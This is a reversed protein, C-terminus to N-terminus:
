VGPRTIGDLGRSTGGPGTRGAGSEGVSRVPSGPAASRISDTRWSAARFLGTVACVARTVVRRDHLADDRVGSEASREGLDAPHSHVYAYQGTLYRAGM